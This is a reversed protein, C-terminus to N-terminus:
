PAPRRSEIPIRLRFSISDGHTESLESVLFYVTDGCRTPCGSLVAACAMVLITRLAARMNSDWNRRAPLRPRCARPSPKKSAKRASLHPARGRYHARQTVRERLTAASEGSERLLLGSGLLTQAALTTAQKETLGHQQAAKVLCEVVYFFYAPGSGSLATVADILKEDVVEVVGIAEFIARAIQEDGGTCNPGLAIGAAGAHVLAPTNPMVRVIRYEPGLRKTIFAISIGAAISVIPTRPALGPKIQELADDM